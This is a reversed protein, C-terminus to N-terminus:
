EIIQKTAADPNKKLYGAIMKRFLLQGNYTQAIAQRQVWAPLSGGLTIELVMSVQTKGKSDDKMPKFYVGCVPMNMRVNGPKAPKTDDGWVIVKISGDRAPQILGIQEVDRAAVTLIRFGCQYGTVLNCGLLGNFYCEAVNKDYAKHVDADFFARFTSLPDHDTYTWCRLIPGGSTPSTAM